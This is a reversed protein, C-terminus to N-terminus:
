EIGEGTLQLRIEYREMNSTTNRTVPSVFEVDKFAPTQELTAILDSSKVSEGQLTVIEGDVVLKSVWTTNPLLKTLELIDELKASHKNKKSALIQQGEIQAVLLRQKEGALRARDSIAAIDTGLEEILANQRSIPFMLTVGLLVILVVLLNRSKSNWLPETAPQLDAPLLNARWKGGTPESSQQGALRTEAEAAYIAEVSLGLQSADDLLQSLYDRRVVMLEVKLRDREPIRQIIRWAYAVQPTSFPTLRDMEFRMVDKLTPETALPLFVSQRILRQEPLEIEVKVQKPVSQAILGRLRQSEDRLGDNSSYEGLIQPQNETYLIIQTEQDGVKLLVRSTDGTFWDEVQKPVLARLEGGWWATFASVNEALKLDRINM